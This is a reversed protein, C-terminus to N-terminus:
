CSAIKKKEEMKNSVVKGSRGCILSFFNLLEQLQLINNTHLQIALFSRGLFLQRAKAIKV